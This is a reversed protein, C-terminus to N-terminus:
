ASPIAIKGTAMQLIMLADSATVGEQGDVDAALLATGALTIKGTAAQLTLLADAATVGNEGDVDGPQYAPKEELAAAARTMEDAASLITATDAYPYDAQVAEAAQRAERYIQWSAPTYAQEDPWEEQLVRNLVTM